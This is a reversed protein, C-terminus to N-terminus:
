AQAQLFDLHDVSHELAAATLSFKFETARASRPIYAPDFVLKNKMNIKNMLKSCLKTYNKGFQHTIPHLNNPLLEISNELTFLSAATPSSSASVPTQKSGKKSVSPEEMHVRKHSGRQNNQRPMSTTM